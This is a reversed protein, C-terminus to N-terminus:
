GYQAKAKKRLVKRVLGCIDFNEFFFVALLKSNIVLTRATTCVTIIVVHTQFAGVVMRRSVAPYVVVLGKALLFPVGRCEVAYSFEWISTLGHATLPWCM